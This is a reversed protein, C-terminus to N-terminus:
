SPKGGKPEDRLLALFAALPSRQRRDGLGAAECREFYERVLRAHFAAVPAFGGSLIVLPELCARAGLWGVLGEEVLDLHGNLSEREHPRARVLGRLHDVGYAIFRTADQALRAGLFADAANDAAWEWHRGLGQVASFLLLNMSASASPYTGSEFVMKLLEGLEGCDVGLGGDGYLARKRFAEGIRAADIMQICMLYKVEHFEQNMQWEWRAAVDAAVLGVSCLGTALQRIAAAREPAHRVADLAEWPVDRAPAWRRSKGEEFIRAALDSWVESKRNLRYGLSPLGDPLIAGRPAMSFNHRVIEPSHEPGYGGRNIDDLTLGRAPQSPRAAIRERISKM